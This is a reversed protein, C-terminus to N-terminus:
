HLAKRVAARVARALSPPNGISLWFCRGDPLMSTHDERFVFHDERFVFMLVGRRDAAFAYRAGRESAAMGNFWNDTPKTPPLLTSIKM